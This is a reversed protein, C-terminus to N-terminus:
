QYIHLPAYRLLLRKEGVQDFLVTAVLSDDHGAVGIVRGDGFTEHFVNAGADFPVEPDWRRTGRRAPAEQPPPAMVPAGEDTRAEYLDCLYVVAPLVMGVALRGAAADILPAGSRGHGSGRANRLEAMGTMVSFLSGFMRKIAQAENRDESTITSPHVGLHRLTKEVLAPVDLKTEPGTGTLGLITKCTTEGLDKAQGVVAEPDDAFDRRIRDVQRRMEAM